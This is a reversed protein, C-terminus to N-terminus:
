SVSSHQSNWALFDYAIPPKDAEECVKRIENQIALYTGKNKVAGMSATKWNIDVDPIHLCSLPRLSYRDLAVDIHWIMKEYREPWLPSVTCLGKALLNILKLARFHDLTDGLRPRWQSCLSRACINAWKRYQENSDIQEFAAFKGHLLEACAWNRFVVSPGWDAKSRFARFTNSGISAYVATLLGFDPKTEEHLKELDHKWDCGKLVAVLAERSVFTLADPM